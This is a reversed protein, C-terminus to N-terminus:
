RRSHLRFAAAYRSCYGRVQNAHHPRKSSKSFVAFCLNNSRNIPSFLHMRKQKIVEDHALDRLKRRPGGGGNRSRAIAVKLELSHDTLIAANSQLVKEIANVLHELGYGNAPTLMVNVDSTLSNGRLTINLLGNEGDLTRSVDVIGSLTDHIHGMYAAMDTAM